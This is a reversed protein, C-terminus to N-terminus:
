CRIDSYYNRKRSGGRGGKRALGLALLVERRAKRSICHKVTSPIDFRRVAKSLGVYQKKLNRIALKPSITARRGQKTLAPSNGPHYRGGNATTTRKQTQQPFSRARNLREIQLAQAYLQSARSIPPSQLRTPNSSVNTARSTRSSKSKALRAEM